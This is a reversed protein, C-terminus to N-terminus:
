FYQRQRYQLQFAYLVEIKKKKNTKLIFRPWSTPLWQLKMPEAGGEDGDMGKGHGEGGGM